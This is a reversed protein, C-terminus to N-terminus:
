SMSQRREARALLRATRDAAPLDLVNALKPLVIGRGVTPEVALLALRRQQLDDIIVAAHEGARMEVFPLIKGGVEVEEGGGEAGVAERQGEVDVVVGEEKGARRLREGLEAPGQAEVFDGQTVCGGWLGFALDLAGVVKPLLAQRREEGGLVDGGQRLGIGQEFFEAEVVVLLFDVAFQAGGRLGSPVKSELFLAGDQPGSWLARPPGIDPALTRWGFDTGILADGDAGLAQADFSGAAGADGAAKMRIAVDGDQEVRGGVSLDGREQEM